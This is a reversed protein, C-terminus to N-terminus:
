TLKHIHGIEHACHRLWTKRIPPQPSFFFKRACLDTDLKSYNTYLLSISILFQVKRQVHIDLWHLKSRSRHEYFAYSTSSRVFLVENVALLWDYTVDNAEGESLWEVNMWVIVFSILLHCICYYSRDHINPPISQVCSASNALKPALQEMIQFVLIDKWLCINDLLCVSM